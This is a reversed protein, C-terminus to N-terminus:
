YILLLPSIESNPHLFLKFCGSLLPLILHIWHINNSVFASRKFSMTISFLKRIDLGSVIFASFLAIFQLDSIKRLDRPFITWVRYFRRSVLVFGYERCLVVSRVHSEILQQTYFYSPNYFTQRHDTVPTQNRLCRFSFIKMIEHSDTLSLWLWPFM